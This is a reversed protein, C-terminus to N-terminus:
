KYDELTTGYIEIVPMLRTTVSEVSYSDGSKVNM